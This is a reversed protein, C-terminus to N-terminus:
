RRELIVIDIRSRGRRFIQAHLFVTLGEEYREEKREFLTVTKRM